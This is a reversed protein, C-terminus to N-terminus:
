YGLAATRWSKETSACLCNQNGPTLSGLWRYHHGGGGAGEAGHQCPAESLDAPPISSTFFWLSTLILSCLVPLFYACCAYCVFSSHGSIILLAQLNRLFSFSIWLLGSSLCFIPLSFECSICIASLGSFISLSASWWLWVCRGHGRAVDSAVGGELGLGPGESGAVILSLVSPHSIM